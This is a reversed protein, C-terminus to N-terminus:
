RAKAPQYRHAAILATQAEDVNADKDDIFTIPSSLSAQLQQLVKTKLEETKAKRMPKRKGPVLEDLKYAERVAPDQLSLVNAAPIGLYNAILDQRGRAATLINISDPGRTGSKLARLLGKALRTPKASTFANRLNEDAKAGFYM